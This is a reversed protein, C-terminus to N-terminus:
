HGLGLFKPVSWVLVSYIAGLMFGGGWKVIVGEKPVCGHLYVIGGVISVLLSFIGITSSPEATFAMVGTIGLLLLGATKARSRPKRGTEAPMPEPNAQQPLTSTPASAPASVAAGVNSSAFPLDRKFLPAGAPVAGERVLDSMAEQHIPGYFCGSTVEALCDMELESLSTVPCWTCGDESIQHMPALRGNKAWVKLTAIDAPGFIDGKDTRIRWHRDDASISSSRRASGVSLQRDNAGVRKFRSANVPISGERVLDAFVEQHIPGYFSGPTVEAVWDMELESLSTVPSWTCGDNSIQYTPAFRGNKDWVKLTAVDAPGFLDGKDTRIRWKNTQKCGVASNQATTDNLHSESRPSGACEANVTAPKSETSVFSPCGLASGWSAVAWRADEESILPNDRLRTIAQSFGTVGVQCRLLEPVGKEVAEVLLVVDKSNGQYYDLLLARLRRPDRALDDGYKEVISALKTSLPRQM